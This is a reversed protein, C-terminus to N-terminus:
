KNALRHKKSGGTHCDQSVIVVCESVTRSNWVYQQGGENDMVVTNDLPEEEAPLISQRSAMSCLSQAPSGPCDKAM